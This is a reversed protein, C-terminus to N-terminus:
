VEQPLSTEFIHFISAQELVVGDRLWRFDGYLKRLLLSPKVFIHTSWNIGLKSTLEDCNKVFDFILGSLTLHCLRL